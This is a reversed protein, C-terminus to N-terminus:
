GREKQLSEARQKIALAILCHTSYVLTCELKWYVRTEIGTGSFQEHSDRSCTRVERPGNRSRYLPKVGAQRTFNNLNFSIWIHFAQRTHVM